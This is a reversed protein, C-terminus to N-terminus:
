LLCAQGAAHDSLDRTRQFTVTTGDPGTVEATSESTFRVAVEVIEGGDRDGRGWFPGVHGDWEWRDSEFWAPHSGGGFDTCSSEFIAIHGRRWGVAAVGAASGVLALALFPIAIKWWRARRGLWGAAEAEDENPRPQGGRLNVVQDQRRRAWSAVTSTV